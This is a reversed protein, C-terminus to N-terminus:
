AARANYKWTHRMVDGLAAIIPLRDEKGIAVSDAIDLNEALVRTTM